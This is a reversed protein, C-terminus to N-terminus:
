PFRSVPFASPMYCAPRGQWTHAKNSRKLISFILYLNTQKNKLVSTFVGRQRAVLGMVAHAVVVM